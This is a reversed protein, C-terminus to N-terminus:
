LKLNCETELSLENVKFVQQFEKRIKDAHHGNINKFVALGDDRYLGISNKGFKNALSNLFFCAWLNVFKLGMM